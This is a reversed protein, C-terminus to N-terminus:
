VYGGNANGNQEVLYRGCFMSEIEVFGCGMRGWVRGSWGLTFGSCGSFLDIFELKSNM